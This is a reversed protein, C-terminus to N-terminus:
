QVLARNHRNEIILNVDYVSDYEHGAEEFFSLDVDEWWNRLIEVVPVAVWTKPGTTNM